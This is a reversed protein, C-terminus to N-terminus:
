YGLQRSISLMDYYAEECVIKNDANFKFITCLPFSVTQGTAEMARWSGHITGSRVAQIILVGDAEFADEIEFSVNSWPGEDATAQQLQEATTAVIGTGHDIWQYGPGTCAGAAQWDARSSAEYYARVTDLRKSSM